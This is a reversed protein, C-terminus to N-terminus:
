HTVGHLEATSTRHADAGTLTARPVPQTTTKSALWSLVLGIFGFVAVESGIMGFVSAGEQAAAAVQICLVPAIFRLANRYRVGHLILLAFGILGMAYAGDLAPSMYYIPGAHTAMGITMSALGLAAVAAALSTLSINRM